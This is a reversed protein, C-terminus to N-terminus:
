SSRVTNRMEFLCFLWFSTRHRLISLMEFESECSDRAPGQRQQALRTELSSRNDFIEITSELRTRAAGQQLQRSGPSYWRVPNRENSSVVAGWKILCQGVKWEGLYALCCETCEWERKSWKENALVSPVMTETLVNGERRTRVIEVSRCCWSDSGYSRQSTESHLWLEM